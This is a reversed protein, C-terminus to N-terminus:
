TIIEGTNNNMFDLMKEYCSDCIDYYRNSWYDQLWNRRKMKIQTRAENKECFDCVCKKAM